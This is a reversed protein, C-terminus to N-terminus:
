FAFGVCRRGGEAERRHLWPKVVELVVIVVTRGSCWRGSPAFWLLRPCRGLFEGGGFYEDLETTIVFGPLVCWDDVM